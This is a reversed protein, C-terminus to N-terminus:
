RRGLASAVAEKLINISASMEQENMQGFGIRIGTQVSNQYLLNKPIFLGNKKCDAAIQYLNLQLEAKWKAWIALGGNPVEFDLAHGLQEILTRACHNRRAEYVRLSKRWYRHIEGEEIMEGLAQEMMIDGQRDIIGLHKQMEFTLDPPAVVFGMRFGPALSKGFSGTYIVMGQQDNAAIPLAPAADYQFEYDYDDEVIAFGFAASLQLLKERREISLTATTPYHHHPTVYLMRVRTTQSIKELHDVDIGQDDVPVTKITAGVQQFIMNVAFYSLEGVIVVDGPSILAESIIYVSMETSRTILLHRPSVRLGRSQNLYSALQVKLYESGETNYFGMKRQNSRRKLNASYFSSVKHIQTLRIDPNGDDWIYECPAFEFPTDLLMSKKFSYGARDPYTRTDHHRNGRIVGSPTSSLCVFTGKNPKTEIWNQSELEQYAAIATKRHVDLLSAIARTGPLKTNPQLIGRGIAHALQDAIQLYIKKSANRDISIASRITLDVPSSM